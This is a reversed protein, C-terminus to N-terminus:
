AGVTCFFRIPTTVRGDARIIRAMCWVRQNQQVVFSCNQTQPSAPPAALNGAVSGAYRFYNGYFNVNSPQPEGQHITLYAGNESRWANTTDFTHTIVQTAESIAVTMTNDSEPLTLTAPGDDVWHNGQIRLAQMSRLYMNFGTLYITDGVKNTWPVAAAYVNWQSRQTSTLISNWRDVIDALTARVVQQRASNPNVPVKYARLYSGFRNHSGVVGGAKGSVATVFIGKILM